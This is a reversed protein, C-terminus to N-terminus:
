NYTATLTLTGTYSGSEQDAAANVTAGVYVYTGNKSDVTTSPFTISNNGLNLQTLSSTETGYGLSVVPDGLENQNFIIPLTKSNPGTLNALTNFSLTVSSGAGAFVKFSGAQAISETGNDSSVGKIAGPAVYKKTGKMVSGFSLDAVKEVDIADFVTASASMNDSRTQAQATVGFGLAFAAVVFIKVLKKM